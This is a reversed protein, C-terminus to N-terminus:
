EPWTMVAKWSGDSQRKLVILGQSHWPVPPSGSSLQYEAAKDYWAWALSGEVQLSTIRSTYRLVKLGPNRAHFEANHAAIAQRGVAPPSGPYYAVADEAWLNLLRKPDQALTAAIDEQNLREIAAEDAAHTRRQIVGGASRAFYGGGIGAAFVLISIVSPRNM